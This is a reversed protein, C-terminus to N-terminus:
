CFWVASAVIKCSKMREVRKQDIGMRINLWFASVFYWTFNKIFGLEMNLLEFLGIHTIYKIGNKLVELRSSDVNSSSKQNQFQKSQDTIKQM